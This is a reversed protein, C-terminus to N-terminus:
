INQPDLPFGWFTTQLAGLPLGTKSSRRAAKLGYPQPLPGPFVPPRSPHWRRRRKEGCLWLGHRPARAIGFACSGSGTAEFRLEPQSHPRDLRAPLVCIPAGGEMAFSMFLCQPQAKRFQAHWETGSAVPSVPVKKRVNVKCSAGELSPFRLPGLFDWFFGMGFCPFLWSNRPPYVGVQHLFIAWREIAPHSMNPGHNWGLFARGGVKLKRVLQIGVSGRELGAPPNGRAPTPHESSFWSVPQIDDMGEM